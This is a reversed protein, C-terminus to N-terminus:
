SREVLKHIPIAMLKEEDFTVTGRNGDATIRLDLHRSLEAAEIEDTLVGNFAGYDLEKIEEWIAHGIPDRFHSTAENYTHQYLRLLLDIPINM